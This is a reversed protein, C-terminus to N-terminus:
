LRPQGLASDLWILYAQHLLPSKVWVKDAFVCKEDFFDRLPDMTERYDSTANQIDAPIKLGDQLWELCGRIAWALIAAGSRAPDTLCAKLQPDRENEPVVHDFPIRIVRRWAGDDDDPIIPPDNAILWLKFEPQFQFEGRHLFRATITDRGTLKKILGCDLKKGANTEVAAV